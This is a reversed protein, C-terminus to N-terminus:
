TRLNYQPLNYFDKVTIKAVARCSYYRECGLYKEVVKSCQKDVAAAPSQLNSTEGGAIDCVVVEMCLVGRCSYSIPAAVIEYGAHMPTVVTVDTVVLLEIKPPAKEPPRVAGSAYGISTCAALLLLVYLGNITKSM